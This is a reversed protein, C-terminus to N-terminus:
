EQELDAFREDFTSSVDHECIFLCTQTCSIDNLQGNYFMSGCLEKDGGDPQGNGWQTYGSNDLAGGKITTWGDKNKNHFGLFVAGALYKGRVKDKPALRTMNVLHDAEEKTNIIALYSQDASCVRYAESWTMPTLYMKYCRGLVDSYAYDTNPIDCNVNWELSALTKKCIFPFSKACDDDNMLGDNRHIVVCDENNHSDNPEGPKWKNYVDMISVGDVTEFVGKAMQASIGISIWEFPQTTNWYTTVADFEFKDDPYFFTAGEMECTKKADVWKKFLTHIKYFSETSEIYTYDKRFFKNERQGHILESPLLTLLFLIPFKLNNM